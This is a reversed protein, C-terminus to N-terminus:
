SNYRFEDLTYYCKQILLKKVAAKFQDYSQISKIQKPLSNFLTISNYHPSRKYTSTRHVPIAFNQHRTMNSEIFDGLNAKTYTVCKLIYISPFTLIKKTIFTDKCSERYTLNFLLRILRKQCIFVRQCNSSVGWATVNYAMHSYAFSYYLNILGVENLVSKLQLIVYFAKNLKSCVQDVHSSFKLNSDLNTGLLKVTSKFNLCPLSVHRSSHPLHFNIVETKEHNMLLRNNKCWNKFQYITKNIQEQLDDTSLASVTITTDDAFMVVMGNSIFNPLDNM